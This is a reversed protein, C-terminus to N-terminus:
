AVAAKTEQATLMEVNRMAVVLMSFDITESTGLDSMCHLLRDVSKTNQSHWREVATKSDDGKHMSKIVEMTLRRQQDFLDNIISTVAIRDWHSDIVLREASMRLWGLQLRSGLDFYVQGVQRVPLTTLLSGRVVDCASSLVELEAVRKAIDKPVSLDSFYGFKKQTAKKLTDSAIADSYSMFERIGPEYDKMAKSLDIPQPYNRLFWGTIRAVFENIEVFMEAQVWAPVKGTLAEIQTWLPRLDFADRAIAFARAVDCSRVGADDAMTHFFGSGVRNVMNNTLVTAIIERRLAHGEIEEAFDEQMPQPFYELLDKRFYPDDPLTSDLVEQYLALKSYALIVALEPRTFGQKKARREAIEEESPLFEIERNLLGAKEMSRILRARSELINAGQAEANSLAQNQLENDRLVLHAVEDTMQVLLKDRKATDLRGKEVAAAFAIKINVEHDSCDVGASNDLADTNIRGGNRAFEIRGRQTFGLNGGEGVVKCRLDHGNIRLANNTRDGVDEHSEHKSKVYTGIGGNWLLDVPAKLMAKILEDPALSKTGAPLALLACVEKSVPITKESRKFIGGGKSILKANYDEWSSRPLAFLREREKYSKAANPDPDLFIHMHNFAGVLKIHKSLLMGNGFVDGAMDGIGIVSFDEKAIDKGMERFHREVSVWAGRATIGMKKHDYGASGGSAFADGLWFGYELSIGNAIDSFTATGKDAAVVLYPDDEDHRIVQKPPVIKGSVINDTVDLLGRLFTKYCAIGEALQEERGGNLPPQKVVFGGKSGVPVIISNKVMQAKMLGLVETRFDEHRDSWRLGGRAVKGGRLHIGEVRLSYVFIERFPRPLPLELLAQSDLKFSIYDKHPNKKDAPQFFNTRLTSQIVNILLRVVRDQALNSVNALLKNISQVITEPKKADKGNNPDFRAHFLEVLKRAIQPYEELAHIIFDQGYSLGTQKLYKSYARLMTVDRWGLGAKIVLANFGDNEMRGHWVLALAEEFQEKFQLVDVNEIDKMTLRLDRVSVTTESGRPAILYPNEDLVRFGMNELMPLVDSLPVQGKPNYVKLRVFNQADNTKRFLDLALHDSTVAEDIKQIDFVASESGYHTVYNAPFASKYIRYLRDGKTDGYKEILSDLLADSWLNTVKAIEAEIERLKVVPIKGPTTAVILHVRALPSDTVQTYYATVKGNYAKELIAQIKERLYTSYRDRPVYLMASIFREFLDKRAFLRVDPRADLSLVGMGTNFLETESIQFLEDRPFFEMIAKLAKGNHSAPDFNARALTREIKRRIIPIDDASQYYVRSTFLGLFRNEGVVEGKKDFRKISIYDMHIPRHVPSKMNAKTIECLQKNRAFHLVEPPLGSLGQPKLASGEMRFLGLESDPVVKYTDKKAFDYEMYGLFVFNNDRLWELFDKVEAVDEERFTTPANDIIALNTEIKSMITRWDAVSYSVANLVRSINKELDKKSLEDPLSSVHIHMFSENITETDTGLNDRKADDGREKVKILKGQKDRKVRLVPHILEYISLDHRALEATVSDVLFPMDDGIIEIVTRESKWGYQKKEPKFVRIKAVHPKRESIFEYGSVAISAAMEPELTELDMVPMKDYVQRAFFALEGGGKKPVHKIINDIYTKFNKQYQDM